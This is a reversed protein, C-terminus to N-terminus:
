KGGSLEAVKRTAEEIARPDTEHAIIERYIELARARENLNREYLRAARLRADFHTKPNWQFCREFYVASRNLQRYARSEYIDGLQYAVDDIRNSQPYKSLIAQLLLEARRQNDTYDQGLGKDKYQMAQRYLYNAEPINKEPKLTPPPVDLELRYAHKIMRHYQILEEEAWRAREIDGVAIYYGRMAELTEQYDRRANLLREVLQHDGTSNRKDKSAPTAAPQGWVVLGASLVLGAALALFLRSRLM